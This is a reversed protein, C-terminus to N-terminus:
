FFSAFVAFPFVFEFMQKATDKVISTDVLIVDEGLIEPDPVRGDRIKTLDYEKIYRTGDLRNRMIRVSRLNAVSSPGGAGAVAQMLTTRGKVPYVGSAKVAGIVTVRQSTYEEIFIIVQPNQLYDKALRAAIASALQESTLGAAQVLGILPLVIQGTANVRVSRNLSEVGYVEIKLLDQPGILYDQAGPVNGAAILGPNDAATSVRAKSAAQPNASALAGGADGARQGTNACAALALALAWPAAGTFWRVWSSILLRQDTKGSLQALGQVSTRVATGWPGSRGMLM